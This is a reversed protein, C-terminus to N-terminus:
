YLNKNVKPVIMDRLIKFVNVNGMILVYDMQIVIISAINSNAIKVMIDMMVYVAKTKWKIYEM